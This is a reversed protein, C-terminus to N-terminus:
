DRRADACCRFGTSYDHYSREHAITTYYCGPGLQNQTSYFGGMFIANYEVWPQERREVDEEEMSEVFSDTVSTSTWEHLNGVMDYVGDASICAAHEGTAALYGPELNLEPANFHEDYKWQEAGFKAYLLHDKGVNCVGRRASNGYPYRRWNRGQCARRWETWNCLRKGAAECARASEDRSIYAQPYVGAASRAEYWAGEPPRRQHPHRVISGSEGLTVLHAEWRDVCSTGIHAMEDPCPPEPTSAVIAKAREIFASSPALLEQEAIRARSLPAVQAPRRPQEAAASACGVSLSVIAVLLRM